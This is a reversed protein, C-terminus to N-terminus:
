AQNAKGRYREHTREKMKKLDLWLRQNQKRLRSFERKYDCFENNIKEIKAKLIANQRVLLTGRIDYMSYGVVACSVIALIIKTRTKM